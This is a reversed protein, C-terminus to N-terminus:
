PRPTAPRRRAGECTWETSATSPWATRTASPIATVGRTDFSWGARLARARDRDRRRADRVVRLRVDGVRQPLSRLAAAFAARASRCCRAPMSRATACRARAGRIPTTPPMPSSRRAGATTPTRSTGTRGARARGHPAASYAHRGLADFGGTAAGVSLEDDDSEVVPTWFRPALTRWRATIRTRSRELRPPLECGRTRTRAIRRQNQRSPKWIADAVPLSFLDYGTARTASSSSAHTRGALPESVARSCRNARAPAATRRAVDVSYIQFPEGGRDAAFCLTAGDSTWAPGITAPETPSTVTVGCPAAHGRGPDRNRVPRRLKRREAAITRGDPSWRPSAFRCRSRCCLAPTGTAGPAPVPLTALARRDPRQITCVIPRAMRVLCRSRGARAERTLRRVRRWARPDVAYLDSQSRLTACTSSRTSCSKAPPRRRHARRAITTTVSARRGRRDAGDPRSLRATDRRSYFLRGDTRLRPACVNFGHHTLANAPTCRDAARTSADKQFDKWLDGSRSASCRESRASARSLAAPTCNRRCANSRLRDTRGRSISTFTAATSTRRRGAPWDVVANSARDLPDFRGAAAAASRAAAPFRGGARARRGDSARRTRRSGKSRGRRCFCIRSSCRCAASCAVCAASGAAGVSELHLSTRTSTRSCWGCGTTPTASAHERGDARRRHDRDHQLSAADGLREVSREPRRPHRPRAGARRGLRRSSSPRSRKPSRPSGGRWRRRVRTSTSTSARRRSRASACARITASSRAVAFARLAALVCVSRSAPVLRHRLSAGDRRGCGRM